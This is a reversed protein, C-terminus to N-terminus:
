VTEGTVDEIALLILEDHERGTHLRRANLLMTKPGIRPFDHAVEFDNIVSSKPIIEQLLQRLAPIDWEGEGLECVPRGLTDGEATKFIRYFAPNASVVKLEGNLVLLPGRVTDVIAEALLLNSRQESIDLFTLVVGNIANDTNRYPLIRLNFWRDDQSRIDFEKLQLTQRVENVDEYLRPYDIRGTIDWLHRGVDSSILNFLKTAAPTFRQVKMENDLFITGIATATLFNNLDDNLRILEDVKSQLESNVTVLEENTIQLEEKATEMEENTSQLEENTSQLEENTSKLEENAAELEEITTQLYQKTTQVEQELETIRKGEELTAPKGRRKRLLHAPTKGEFIVLFLNGPLGPGRLPRVSLDVLSGGDTKLTLGPSQVTRKEKVAQHLLSLLRPTLDPRAMKLLNFVAEGRPPSLFRGTDGHFYHIDFKGDVLVAPPSYETLILKEMMERVRPAQELAPELGRVEQLRGAAALPPYEALQHIVAGKRRFIKNKLDAPEFLDAFGGVTESSGLFLYGRPSLCYHFMPLLQKQLELDLYILVNRCSILDLKSFPPDSILNQEAFVVMDRIDQKIKYVADKKTFFRMLREASVDAAISEPYEGRRAREIAVLDIDTAFIQAPQHRGAKETGEVLLMAISLAEEGTACGPVWVRVAEDRNKRGLIDPIAKTELAQFAAADRFFSTVCIVLDKFLAQVEPPNETLFRHYDAIDVIKHVALRREIRRRITTPKYHSFDHRTASRVLLLIKQLYNQSRKSETLPKEQRELYPHRVYHLMEQPMEEVPLIHDVLGTDIASRPMFPYKAQEEAQAMTMGGAGKVAELGLTGDSGTGSLVMCIALEGQDEALSRFFFDISLRAGRSSDMPAALHFVGKFLAVDLDPPNFYICDPAIRMGDQIEMVPMETDRKLIDGLISKHKPSLHQIVVFAMGSKSPMNSFFTELAELGGASSGIGVIPFSKKAEKAAEIKEQPPNKQNIKKKEPSQNKQNIKKKM